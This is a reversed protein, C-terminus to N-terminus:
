VCVFKELSVKAREAHVRLRDDKLTDVSQLFSEVNHQGASTVVQKAGATGRCNSINALLRACERRMEISNYNGDSSCLPLLTKLFGADRILLEQCAHSSSLHALACIAHQNCSQFDVNVLDVLASLCEAYKKVLHIDESRSFIDCFIQSAGLQAEGKGSNAMSLVGDISGDIDRPCIEDISDPIPLMAPPVYDGESPIFSNRIAQYVIVFAMSDGSLRNGEIIHGGCSRKYVNFEFKCRSSGVLYVGEWRCKDTFFEYSVGILGDLGVEVRAKIDGANQKTLFHTSPAVYFPEAPACIPGPPKTSVLCKSSSPVNLTVEVKPNYDSTLMSKSFQPPPPPNRTALDFGFPNTAQAASMCRFKTDLDYEQFTQHKTNHGSPSGIDSDTFVFESNYGMHYENFETFGESNQKDNANSM